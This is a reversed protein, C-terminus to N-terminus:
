GFVLDGGSYGLGVALVLMILYFGTRRDLKPEEPDDMIAVTIMLIGLLTALVMKVIILTEWEGAYRHQWDLYGTFATPFLGLLGLIVCHYGTKALVKLKPLFAALRFTVAGLVMGMPIHTFAAHIPHHFGIKNLFEFITETM